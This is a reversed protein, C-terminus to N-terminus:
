ATADEGGVVGAFAGTLVDGAPKADREPHDFLEELLAPAGAIDGRTMPVRAALGLDEGCVPARQASQHTGLGIQGQGLQARGRSQVAGQRGDM